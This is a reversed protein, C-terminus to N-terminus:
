RSAKGKKATPPGLPSRVAALRALEKPSLDGKTLPRYSGKVLDYNAIDAETKAAASSQDKPKGKAPTRKAM